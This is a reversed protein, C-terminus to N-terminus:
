VDNYDKLIVTIYPCDSESPNIKFIENAFFNVAYLEYSRLMSSKSKIIFTGRYEDLIGLVFGRKFQLKCVEGINAMLISQFKDDKFKEDKYPNKRKVPKKM